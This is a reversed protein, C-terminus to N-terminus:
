VEPAPQRLAPERIVRFSGRTTALRVVEGREIADAMTEMQFALREAEGKFYKLETEKMLHDHMRHLSGMTAFEVHTEKSM